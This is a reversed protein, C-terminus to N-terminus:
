RSRHLVPRLLLRKNIEKIIWDDYYQWKTLIHADANKVGNFSDVKALVSDVTFVNDTYLVFILWDNPDIVGPAYLINNQFETYMLRSVSRYNNKKVIIPIAFQIYGVMSSPDCQITFDLLRGERMKNLRRTTTKESIGLEKAIESIGTRAGFQVLSKIIRLDTESLDTSVSVESIPISIVIAPKLHESISQIFNEDLSKNIILAAVCTRGVHHVHYALPGIQKARQIIDDKSIGVNTRAFVHATRYGFGAPNVRVIFKEIVGRGIMKKVRAKVSKTTLGVLSGIGSYSTRSDRALITLINLDVKTLVMREM